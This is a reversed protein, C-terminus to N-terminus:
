DWNGRCEFTLTMKGCKPCFYQTDQLRFDDKENNILWEFIQQHKYSESVPLQLSPDNYFTVKKGCSPCKAYKTKYNKTLFERCHLCVAPAGCYHTFNGMGGGALIIESKFGCECMAQLKDGM